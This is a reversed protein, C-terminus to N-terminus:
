RGAMAPHTMPFRRDEAVCEDKSTMLPNNEFRLSLLVSTSKSAEDNSFDLPSARGYGCSTFDGFQNGIRICKISPWTGIDIGNM